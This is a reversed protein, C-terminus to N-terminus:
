EKEKKRGVLARVFLSRPAHPVIKEKYGQPVVIYQVNSTQVPAYLVYWQHQSTHTQQLMKLKQKLFARLLYLFVTSSSCVRKPASILQIKATFCM